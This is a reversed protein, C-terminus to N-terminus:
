PKKPVTAPNISHRLPKSHIGDIKTWSKQVAITPGHIRHFIRWIWSTWEHAHCVLSAMMAPRGPVGSHIAKVYELM